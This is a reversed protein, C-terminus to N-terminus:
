KPEPACPRVDKWANRELSFKTICGESSATLLQLVDTDRWGPARHIDRQANHKNTTGCTTGNRKNAMSTGPLITACWTREVVVRTEPSMHSVLIDTCPM